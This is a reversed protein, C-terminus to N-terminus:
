NRTCKRSVMWAMQKLLYIGMDLSYENFFDIEETLLDHIDAVIECMQPPLVYNTTRIM